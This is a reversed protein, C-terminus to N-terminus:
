CDFGSKKASSSSAERSVSIYSRWLYRLCARFVWCYLPRLLKQGTFYELPLSSALWKYTEHTDLFSSSSDSEVGLCFCVLRAVERVWLLDSRWSRWRGLVFAGAICIDPIVMFWTTRVFTLSIDVSAFNLIVICMFSVAVSNARVLYLLYM